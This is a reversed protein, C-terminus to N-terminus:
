QRRRREILMLLMPVVTMATVLASFIGAVLLIGLSRVGWHNGALLSGFGILTTLGSLLIAKGTTHLAGNISGDQKVRHALHVGYDVATGILIPIGMLNAYNFQLGIAYMLLATWGASLVVPGLAIILSAPHRLDLLVLIIVALASLVVAQIFGNQIMETFARHTVAHGTMSPDVSLLEDVHRYFFAKQGIDGSPYAIVAYLKGDESVYRRRITEPLDSDTIQNTELGNEVVRSLRALLGWIYTEFAAARTDSSKLIVAKVRKTANALRQLMGAESRRARKADFALDSFTFQLEEFASALRAGSGKIMAGGASKSSINQLHQAVRKLEDRRLSALTNFASAKQAQDNPVFMAASEVRSVTPLRRLKESVAAAKKLSDTTTISFTSSFATRGNLIHIGRVADSSSPLMSEVAYNFRVKPAVVIGAAFLAIGMLVVVARPRTFADVFKGSSPRRVAVVGPHWHLLAAPLLSLNAVLILLIGAGSIVGMEAFGQFESFVIALFAFATTMGGAIVGPGAGTLATVLASEKSEGALLAEHFRGVIHITFAVGLGFLVAAFYATIMTLHAYVLATFGASWILGAGLPLVLFLSIRLSRFALLFVLLVGVGAIIGAVLCDRSVLRLEDTALSPMGTVIVDVHMEDAVQAATARIIDTLPAVVEMAQSPNAPQIFGVALYPAKGDNATFFGDNDTAQPFSLKKALSKEWDTVPELQVVNEDEFWTETAQLLAEIADIATALDNKRNSNSVDPQNKIWEAGAVILDDISSSAELVQLDLQPANLAAVLTKVSSMPAFQLAHNEFFTTDARYFVDRVHRPKQKLRAALRTIAENAKQQTDAQVIAVSVLTTGFIRNVEDRREFAPNNKGALLNRDTSVHLRPLYLSLIITLLLSLWLIARSHLIPVQAFYRM